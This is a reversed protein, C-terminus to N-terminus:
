REKGVRCGSQSTTLAMGPGIIGIQIYKLLSAPHLGIYFIENELGDSLTDYDFIAPRATRYWMEVFERFTAPDLAYRYMLHKPM